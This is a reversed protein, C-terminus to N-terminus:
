DVALIYGLFLEIGVQFELADRKRWVLTGWRTRSPPMRPQRPPNASWYQTATMAYGRFIPPLGSFLQGANMGMVNSVVM